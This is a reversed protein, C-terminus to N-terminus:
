QEVQKSTKIVNTVQIPAGDSVAMLGTVLITDGLQLGETVQVETARREETQVFTAIARDNRVVYVQKGDLVPIVADTPILMAEDNVGTILTVKAFQGPKLINRDNRATARVKFTRTEPSIGTGIAYVKATFTEGAGVITFSLEQGARVQTLYREPVEFELKIPNIQELEVIINNPTVYAGQSITRLGLVGSFPARIESKKLQVDIVKQEAKIAEVRNELRDLEEASIGQVTLLEKGRAVEKTALDLEIDLMNKEAELAETDIRGLLTGQQVFSAESFDLKVLKGSREPRIEVAEYAVLNGTANIIEQLSSPQVIFGEVATVNPGSPRSSVPSSEKTETQDKCSPLAFFLLCAALIWGLARCNMNKMSM